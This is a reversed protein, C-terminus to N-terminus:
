GVGLCIYKKKGSEETIYYKDKCKLTKPSTPTSEANESYPNEEFCFDGLEYLNSGCSNVCENAGNVIKGYGDCNPKVYCQGNIAYFQNNGDFNCYYYTNDGNISSKRCNQPCTPPSANCENCENQCFIIPLILNIIIFFFIKIKKEKM